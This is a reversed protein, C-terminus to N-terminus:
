RESELNWHVLWHQVVLLTWLARGHDARGARHEALLRTVASGDVLGALALRGPALLRDAMTALPGNLWAGVPVSLGRKRRRLIFGPLRPRAVKRLLLKTGTGRVQAGGAAFAAHTVAPDLYPARAELSARMTARDVKILLRERLPGTYDLWMAAAVVDQPVRADAVPASWDSSPLAAPPLGNAFWRLHREPWPAEAAEVFRELLFRLPVRRYSVPLARVGARVAARLPRPVRLWAPVLRHGLYTPYGGFLEDAGEGSLAVTISRRAMRSLVLTPIAAPDAIPEGTAALVELADPVEEGTVEASAHPMGLTAALREAYRREDYSREAFGVTFSHLRAPGVVDAALAALLSSDLGGSTFVGVPVDARVQRAVASCLLDDLSARPLDAPPIPDWYREATGGAGRVTVISGAPVKRVGALPTRPERVYGHQLVAGLAGLDLDRAVAGSQLLAGIESAFWWEGDVQTTFLPKEGARDRALVLVGTRRDLVAIAFMGELDALGPAGRDLYLPLIVEADSRSCFPFAAYRQRLAPANYIEGNCALVVQGDPDTFPQDARPDLDMVRLRTVGLLADRYRCQGHGDPGRHALARGIAEADDPHKLPAGGPAFMGYIGCM